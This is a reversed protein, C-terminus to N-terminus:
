AFVGHEIRGILDRVEQAGPETAAYEFPSKGGLARHGSHFWVAARAVDGDYLRVAASFLLAMRAVRDSEDLHLRGEAKRRALTRESIIVGEALEPLAIDLLTALQEVVPVPIGAEIERILTRPDDLSLDIDLGAGSARHPKLLRKASM